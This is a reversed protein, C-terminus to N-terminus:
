EDFRDRADSATLHAISKLYESSLSAIHTGRSFGLQTLLNSLRQFSKDPNTAWYQSFIQRNGIFERSFYDRLRSEAYCQIDMKKIAASDFSEVLSQTAAIFSAVEKFTPATGNEFTEISRKIDLGRHTEAIQAAVSILKRSLSANLRTSSESHVLTNRWKIAFLTMLLAPDNLQIQLNSALASLREARGDIRNISDQISRDFVSDTKQVQKRYVDILDTIWVLSTVLAYERSRLASRSRDKPSWSTSFEDKLSATGDRVSELGVLVTILLHNNQGANKKFGIRAPTRNIGLKIGHVHAPETRVFM